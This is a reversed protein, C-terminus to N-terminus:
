GLIIRQGCLRGHFPLQDGPDRRRNQVAREFGPVPRPHRRLHDSARARGECEVRGDINIKGIHFSRNALIDSLLTQFQKLDIRVMECLAKVETEPIPKCKMLTEISKDLGQTSLKTDAGRTAM